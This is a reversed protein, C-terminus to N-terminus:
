RRRGKAIRQAYTQPLEALLLYNRSKPDLLRFRRQAAGIMEVVSVIGNFDSDMAAVPEPIDLIGYRGGGRAFSPDRRYFIQPVKASLDDTQVQALVFNRMTGRSQTAGQGGNWDISGFSGTRVEPAIVDEYRKVEERSLSKSQDVDLTAFFRSFDLAFETSTLKGDGDRDAGGFWTAVPYPEAPGARFPEGAPSIFLQTTPPSAAPAATIATAPLALLLPFLGIRILLRSM